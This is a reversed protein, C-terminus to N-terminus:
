CSGGFSPNLLEGMGWRRRASPVRRRIKTRGVVRREPAGHTELWSQVCDYARLNAESVAETREGSTPSDGEMKPAKMQPPTPCRGLTEERGL